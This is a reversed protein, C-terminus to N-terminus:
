VVEAADGPQVPGPTKVIALLDRKGYLERPVQPHYVSLQSCPNNQETVELEVGSSSPSRQGPRVQDLDGLGRVIINASPVGGKASLCVAVVTGKSLGHEETRSLWPRSDAM